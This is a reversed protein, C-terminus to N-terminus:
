DDAWKKISSLKRVGIKTTLQDCCPKITQTSSPDSKSTSVPVDLEVAAAVQLPMPDKGWEQFPWERM